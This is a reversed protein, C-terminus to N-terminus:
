KNRNKINRVVSKSVTELMTSIDETSEANIEKAVKEVTYSEDEIEIDIYTDYLVISITAIVFIMIIQTIFKGLIHNKKEKEKYRKM